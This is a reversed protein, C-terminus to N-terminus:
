CGKTIKGGVMANVPLPAVQLLFLEGHSGEDGVEIFGEPMEHPHRILHTVVKVDDIGERTWTDPM